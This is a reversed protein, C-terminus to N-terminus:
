AAVELRARTTRTWVAALSDRGPAAAVGIRVCSLCYGDVSARHTLDDRCRRCATRERECRNCQPFPNHDRDPRFSMSCGCTRCPRFVRPYREFLCANCIPTKRMAYGRATHRTWESFEAEPWRNDDPPCTPCVRWSSARV